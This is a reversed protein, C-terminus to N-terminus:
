KVKDVQFFLLGHDSYQKIWEGKQVDTKMTPWGRVDVETTGFKKFVLHEAAVVHDLNSPPLSGGPGNWWTFEKSKSLMRMKVRKAKGDLRKLELEPAIDKNYPYDMGMTNLDGMFIYNASDPKGGAKDLTKRFKLAREFMDDRIGLGVPKNSSKTHLFLLPYNKGAVTVTLLAGPRLYTNGSKFELKQTFFSTFTRKVGVLIEQTQRGETIHFSYQPMVEVLASFVKASEVEYLAFVDPRQQNLFKLVREIRSRDDKFHEVNWSAVSFAKAM